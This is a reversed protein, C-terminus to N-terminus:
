FTVFTLDCGGCRFRFGTKYVTMTEWGPIGHQAPTEELRTNGEDAIQDGGCTPCCAPRTQTFTMWDERGIAIYDGGDLTLSFYGKGEITRATAGLIAM